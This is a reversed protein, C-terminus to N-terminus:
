TPFPQSFNMLYIPGGAPISGIGSAYNRIRGSSWFNIIKGRCRKAQIKVHTTTGNSIVIREGILKSESQTSFFSFM